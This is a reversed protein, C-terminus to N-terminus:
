NSTTRAFYPNLVVLPVSDSRIDPTSTGPTLAKFSRVAVSDQEVTDNAVTTRRRRTIATMQEESAMSQMRKTRHENEINARANMTALRKSYGSATMTTTQLSIDRVARFDGCNNLHENELRFYNWVFRRFIEIIAFAFGIIDAYEGTATKFYIFVNIIWIYRLVVNQVMFVYYYTKSSYILRERLYKNKGANKDFLGCDMKFDWILKYTAAVFSAIFWLYLFPNLARNQQYNANNARRLTNTISVLFGSAYKGANVLHPFKAKTDRYRRLCQAFRFWSPLLIFFTELCFQSWGHCFFGPKGTSSIWHVDYIYFCIFFQLDFFILELSTLQDGLWFGTFDVHYFPSLLVRAINKMLWRRSRYYFTRMPNILLLLLFVDFALPQAFPKVDYYSSIIFAIFSLFWLVMLCTGAELLQQYTLHNRPDIEFILVHNVGAHSWSYTNIGIFIIHLAILFSSRYLHLASRWDLPKGSQSTNLTVGLIIVLPILLCLM